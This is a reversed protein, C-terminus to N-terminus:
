ERGPLKLEGSLIKLALEAEDMELIRNITGKRLEEVLALIAQSVEKGRTIQRNLAHLEQRQQTTPQEQKWRDLQQRYLRLYHLRETYLRVVRDLLEDDLVHPKRRAAALTEYQEQSNELLENVLHAVTPLASIPQGHIGQPETM